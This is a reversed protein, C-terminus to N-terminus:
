AYRGRTDQRKKDTRGQAFMTRVLSLVGKYPFGCVYAISQTWTV